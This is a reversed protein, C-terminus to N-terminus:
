QGLPLSEIRSEVFLMIGTIAFDKHLGKFRRAIHDHHSPFKPWLQQVENPGGTSKLKSTFWGMTLFQLKQSGAQRECCTGRDCVAM